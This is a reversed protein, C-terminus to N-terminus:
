NATSEERVPTFAAVEVPCRGAPAAPGPTVRTPGQLWRRGREVLQFPGYTAEDVLHTGIGVVLHTAM